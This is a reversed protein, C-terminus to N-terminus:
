TAADSPRNAKIGGVSVTDGLNLFVHGENGVDPRLFRETTPVRIRYHRCFSSAHIVWGNQKKVLPFSENSRPYAPELAISDDERNYYLMVASPSGFTEHAKRNLYIQGRSNLTVRVEQQGANRNVVPGGRFKEWKRDLPV